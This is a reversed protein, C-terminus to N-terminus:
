GIGASTLLEIYLRETQDLKRELTFHDRVREWGAHGMRERLETSELLKTLAGSLQQSDNPPVLVGTEGDVVLEPIGGVLTAVVPLRSAMAVLIASSLGESLTPLCFIDFHRMFADADARFGCFIVQDRVGLQGAKKKLDAMQQGSGVLVFLVEAFRSDLKAIAELLASHGKEHSLHAVTGVVLGKKEGPFDAAEGRDVSHIDVGEYIAEVLEPRVGGEVLTQRISQSVTVIMSPMWNYKLRSLRTRLPFNVRRSCIRLPVGALKSALWGSVVPRPTNLHIINANLRRLIRWLKWAANLSLESRQGFSLTQISAQRARETLPSKEPAALWINHRRQKMGVMLSFLQEQGGRWVNETDVYLVRLDSM